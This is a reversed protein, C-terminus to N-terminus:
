RGKAFLVVSFTKLVIKIDLLFSFNKIYYLEYQLKQIADEESAGYPYNIQAWGSLGPKVIHRFDYFSIKQSLEKTFEPREPRPGIFSMDGVLINYLQPLEDIRTLRIFKGVRTVRPDSKMAWQAGGAEADTRMSRIKWITFPQGKQGVRTQKYLPSGPSELRILILALLILPSSFLLFLLALLIDSLRKLKTNIGRANLQFGETFLFWEPEILHIPIKGLLSEYFAVLPIVRHGSLRAQILPEVEDRNLHSHAIIGDWQSYDTHALESRSPAQEIQLSGKILELERNLSQLENTDAILLWRSKQKSSAWARDFIWRYTLASVYFLALSGFFVGRGMLGYSTVRFLFVGLSILVASIIVAALLRVPAFLKQSLFSTEYLNLVYSSIVVVSAITLFTETFVFNFQVVGFRVYLLALFSLVLATVDLALLTMQWKRRQSAAWKM